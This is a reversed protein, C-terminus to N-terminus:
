GYSLTGEKQTLLLRKEGGGGILNDGFPGFLSLRGELTSLPKGGTIGVRIGKWMGM